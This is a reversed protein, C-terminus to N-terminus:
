QDMEVRWTGDNIRRDTGPHFSAFKETVFEAGHGRAGILQFFGQAVPILSFPRNKLQVVARSNGAEATKDSPVTEVFQRLEPVHQTSLHAEDARTRVRNVFDAAVFKVVVPPQVHLWAHRSEPLDGGALIRREIEVHM